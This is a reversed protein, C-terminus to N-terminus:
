IVPRQPQGASGAAPIPGAVRHRGCAHLFEEDGLSALWDSISREREAQGGSRPCGPCSHGSTKANLVCCLSRAPMVVPPGGDPRCRLRETSTRAGLTRTVAAAAEELWGAEGPRGAQRAARFLGAIVSEAAITRVAREHLGSCGTVALTVPGLHEAIATGVQSADPCPAVALEPALWLSRAGGDPELVFGLQVGDAPIWVADHLVPRVLLMMVAWNALHLPALAVSNRTLGAAAMRRTVAEYGAPGSLQGVTLTDAQPPGIRLPPDLRRWARLDAMTGAASSLTM